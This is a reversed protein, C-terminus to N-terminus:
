FAVTSSNSCTATGVDCVKYTYSVGPRGNVEDTHAGDNETTIIKTDNRYVDVESGSAGSWVLNATRVNRFRSGSTSLTIGGAPPTPATVTYPVSETMEGSVSTSGSSRVAVAIQYIGPTSPTWTWSASTTWPGSTWSGGEYLAWKFEHPAVGGWAFAQWKVTAGIVQPSALNASLALGTVVTPLGSQLTASVEGSLGSINGVSNYARIAFYYTAGESLDRVMYTTTNGVNVHQSYSRSATGYSVIYGVTVGDSPRDWTLTISAADSLRPCFVATLLVVVGGLRRPNM